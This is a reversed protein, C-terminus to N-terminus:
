VSGPEYTFGQGFVDSVTDTIMFAKKDHKNVIEVLQRYEKSGLAVMLMQMQNQKYAGIIPVITIGKGIKHLIDESIPKVTDSIIYVLKKKSLGTELYKMTAMTITISFIAFFFADISFVFLSLIVVIGDVVFLGVSPNIGFYKQLILPPVATGGSSANNAYLISVAVGFLVSGIVMSIMTDDVLEMRPIVGILVPLLVAGIITNFFVERGLFIFCLVLVILNGIIIIMSRDISFMEEFIIALGTLGGAAIQHPALFMNIGASMLGIAFAIIILKKLWRFWKRENLKEINQNKKKM